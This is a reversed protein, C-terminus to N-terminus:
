YTWIIENLSKKEYFIVIDLKEGKLLICGCRRKSMKRKNQLIIVYKKFGKM